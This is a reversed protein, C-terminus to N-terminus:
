AMSDAVLDTWISLERSKAHYVDDVFHLSLSKGLPPIDM